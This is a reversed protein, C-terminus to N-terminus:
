SEYQVKKCENSNINFVKSLQNVLFHHVGNENNDFETVYDAAKKVEEAGNLM